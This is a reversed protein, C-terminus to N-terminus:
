SLWTPTANTPPAPVASSPVHRAIVANAAEIGSIAAAEVCGGCIGNSTWDGAAAMNSVGTAASPLRHRISGAVSLVYLESGRVNARWFQSDFASSTAAPPAGTLVDWRMGGLPSSSAALPWLGAVDHELFDVALQKVRTDGAAQTEQPVAPLVGCFYAISACEGAKWAERGVLHTMDAYTDLPEVFTGAVTAKGHPYGLAATPESLWLQFAQTPTWHAHDLAEKIRPIRAALGKTLPPLAPIAIALVVEDFDTGHTLTLSAPAPVSPAPPAPDEFDFGSLSQGGVLQTLDPRTPWCPLGNVEVLPDYEAAPDLVSALLQAQVEVEIREIRDDTPHLALDTVRHFFRFHVGRAKLVEYFPAFVADGMGAQMKYALHGRYAFALRLFDDIATGASIDAKAIDGDPYGFSLDYLARLLPSRDEPTTGVTVTKAGHHRLWTSLDQDDLCRFGLPHDMVDDAVLGRMTTVLVDFSTFFMRLPADDPVLPRVVAWIAERALGLLSSYAKRAQAVGAPPLAAKMPKAQQHAFALAADLASDVGVGFAAGLTDLWEPLEFAGIALDPDDRTLDDWWATAIELAMVNVDWFGPLGEGDGPHGANGPAPAAKAYWGGDQRDYLAIGGLPTFAQELTALPSTPDRALEDYAARMLRFANDYFGFWMHLGHEEIRWAHDPNRGSAGKGGLRFGLQHVTVDFQARLDPTATLQMAAVIGGVGGGLVAVKTKGM